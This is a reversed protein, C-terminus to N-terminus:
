LKTNSWLHDAASSLQYSLTLRCIGHALWSALSWRADLPGHNHRRQRNGLAPAPRADSTSLQPM